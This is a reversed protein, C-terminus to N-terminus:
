TGVLKSSAYNYENSLYLWLFGKWFVTRCDLQSRFNNAM